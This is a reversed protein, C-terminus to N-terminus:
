IYNNIYNCIDIQKGNRIRLNLMFIEKQKYHETLFLIVNEEFPLCINAYNQAIICAWLRWAFTIEIRSHGDIQIIFTYVNVLYFSRDEHLFQLNALLFRKSYIAYFDDDSLFRLNGLPHEARCKIVYVNESSM